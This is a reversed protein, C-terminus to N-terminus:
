LRHIFTIGDLNGDAQQLLTKGQSQEYKAVGYDLCWVPSIGAQRAGKIDTRYTDGIMATKLSPQIKLRRFAYEYINLHPKGYEYVKGGFRQYLEVLTGQRIVWHGQEMAYLDPNTSIVPLGLQHIHELESLLPEATTMDYLDSSTQFLKDQYNPYLFIDKIRPTGFYVMDADEPTSVLQFRTGVTVDFKSYGLIYIKHGHVPLTDNMLLEQLLMGSTIVHTYHIGKILGKTASQPDTTSSNSLICVQKGKSVESSLTDKSGPTFNSGNWFVGYVDVFLTDFRDAIESFSNYIHM